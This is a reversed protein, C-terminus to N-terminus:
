HRLGTPSMVMNEQRVNTVRGFQFAVDVLFLTAWNYVGPVPNGKIAEQLECPLPPLIRVRRWLANIDISHCGVVTKLVKM